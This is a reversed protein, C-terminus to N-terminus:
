CKRWNSHDIRATICGADIIFDKEFERIAHYKGAETVFCVTFISSERNNTGTRVHRGIAILAVEREIRAPIDRVLM